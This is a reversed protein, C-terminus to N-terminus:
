GGTTKPGALHAGAAEDFSRGMLYSSLLYALGVGAGVWPLWSVWGRRVLFGLLASAALTSVPILMGLTWARVRVRVPKSFQNTILQMVPNRLSFRLETEVLRCFVAVALTMPFLNCALAAVVLFSYALHTGRVGVWTVMRGVVFLQLVLSGALAIQTYRGLFQAMDMAEAERGTPEESFGRFFEELLAEFKLQAFYQDFFTSYQYNLIWRCVMFFLSTGTIWFLLRSTWVYRFFGPVSTRAAEEASTRGAATPAPDKPRDASAPVPSSWRAIHGVMLLGLGCLLAVGGVLDMLGVPESLNELAVAGLIGGVRGGAYIVALVRNMEDRTFYDQLYTGFHLLIMTLSIERTVFLLGYAFTRAGLFRACFWSLLFLTLSGAIILVFVLTDGAEGARLFYWVVLLFNVVAIVAYAKPLHQAGVEQVFLSLGLGDALTLAAFLLLYLLFFPRLRSLEGQRLHFLRGLM